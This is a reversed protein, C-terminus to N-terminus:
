RLGTLRRMLLELLVSSGTMSPCGSHAIRAFEVGRLALLGPNAITAEAMGDNSAYHPKQLAHLGVYGVPTTTRPMLVAAAALLLLERLLLAM